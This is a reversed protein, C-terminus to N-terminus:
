EQATEQKLSQEVLARAEEFPPCVPIGNHNNAIALSAAANAIQVADELAWGEALLACLAGTHTPGASRTHTAKTEFGEIHQVESGRNRLWAGRSGARLIIPARLTEGLAECLDHMSDDFGGSVTMTKTEDISVGLRAALARAEQRNMSWIPRILIIHELLQDNVLKLTNTSNLVLTFDRKDPACEPRQLFANVSIASENMLANGSIHVVDGTKPKVSTFSSEDGKSEAGHTAIFTKSTGDNLIVRFGNDKALDTHGIHAINARSLWNDIYTAWPGSGLITASQTRAGMNSAAHLVRFSGSPTRTVKNTAIFDGPNPFEDIDMMIDAWIQGLSIVTPEHDRQAHIKNIIDILM